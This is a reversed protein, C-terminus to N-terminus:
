APSSPLENFTEIQGDDAAHCDVGDPPTATVAPEVVTVPVFVNNWDSNDLPSMKTIAPREILTAEIVLLVANVSVSACMEPVAFVVNM